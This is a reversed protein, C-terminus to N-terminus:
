NVFPREKKQSSQLLLIALLGHPLRYLMNASWYVLEMTSGENILIGYVLRAIATIIGWFILYFYVPRNPFNVFILVACLIDLYGVIKLFILANSDNIRLIETTMDLFSDPVYHVGIAYMGHGIFTLALLVKAWFVVSSKDFTPFKIGAFLLLPTLLKIGHEILQEPLYGSEIFSAYSAISLLVTAPLLLYYLHAKKYISIPLLLPIALIMLMLGWIWDITSEDGFIPNLADSGSMLAVGNGAIILFCCWRLLHTYDSLKALM